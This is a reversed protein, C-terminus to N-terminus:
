PSAGRGFGEVNTLTVIDGKLVYSAQRFRSPSVLPDDIVPTTVQLVTSGETLEASGRYAALAAVLRPGSDAQRYVLIGVTIARSGSQVPVIAEEQGDGDIDGFITPGSLIYGNIIPFTPDQTETPPDSGFPVVLVCLGGADVASQPADPCREPGTIIWPDKKFAANWDTYRITVKATHQRLPVLANGSMRFVSVAIASPSSEPDTPEYVPQRVVLTRNQIALGAQHLGGQAVLLSSRPSAVQYILYGIIGAPGNDHVPVVAKTLGDGTLDGYRVAEPAVFGTRVKDPDRVENFTVCIGALTGPPSPPCDDTNLAIRPDTETSLVAPWDVLGQAAVPPLLSAVAALCVALASLRKLM